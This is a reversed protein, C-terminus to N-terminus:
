KAPTPTPEEEVAPRASTLYAGLDEVAKALRDNEPDFDLESKLYRYYPYVQLAPESKLKMLTSRHQALLVELERIAPVLTKEAEIARSAAVVDFRRQHGFQEVIGVVLSLVEHSIRHMPALKRMEAVSLKPQVDTTLFTVMDPHNILNKPGNSKTNEISM